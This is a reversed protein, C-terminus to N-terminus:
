KIVEGAQEFTLNLAKEKFGISANKYFTAMDWDNKKAFDIAKLCCEDSKNMLEEYKTMNNEKYQCLDLEMREICDMLNIKMDSKKMSQVLRKLDSLNASASEIANEKDELDQLVDEIEDPNMELNQEFQKEFMDMINEIHKEVEVYDPKVGNERLFDMELMETKHLFEGMEENNM